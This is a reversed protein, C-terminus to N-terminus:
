ITMYLVFKMLKAEIDAILLKITNNYTTYLNEIRSLYDSSLM